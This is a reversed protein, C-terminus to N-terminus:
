LQGYPNKEYTYIYKLKHANILAYRGSVACQILNKCIDSYIRMRYEVYIHFVAHPNPFYLRIDSHFRMSIVRIRFIYACIHIDSVCFHMDAHFRMHPIRMALELVCDRDSRSRIFEM